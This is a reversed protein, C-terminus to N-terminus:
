TLREGQALNRPLCRATSYFHHQAGSEKMRQVAADFVERGQKARAFADDWDTREAPLARSDVRIYHPAFCSFFELWLSQNVVFRECLDAVLHKPLAWENANLIGFYAIQAIDRGALARKAEPPLISEAMYLQPRAFLPAGAALALGDDRNNTIYSVFSAIARGTEQVLFSIQKTLLKGVLLELGQTGLDATAKHGISEVDSVSVNRALYLFTDTLAEDFLLENLQFDLEGPTTVSTLAPHIITEAGAVLARMAHAVPDREADALKKPRAAWLLGREVFDRDPAPIMATFTALVGAGPL